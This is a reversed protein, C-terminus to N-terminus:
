PKRGISSQIQQQQWALMQKTWTLNNKASADLGNIWEQWRPDKKDLIPADTRIKAVATVAKQAYQVASTFDSQSVLIRSWDIYLEPLHESKPFSQEFALVLKKKVQVNQEARIKNYAATEVQLAPLPNREPTANVSNVGNRTLGIVNREDSSVAAAFKTFAEWENETVKTKKRILVRVVNIVGENAVYTAFYQAFESTPSANSPLIITYGDPVKITARYTVKGPAGLVFPSRPAEKQPEVGITPLPAKFQRNEGSTYNKQEYKFSFHFASDTNDSDYFQVDSVTGSYGLALAAIQGAATWEAPAIDKFATKLLVESDGRVFVDLRGALTGDARLEAELDITEDAPFPLAEPTTMVAPEANAPIVLAKRDRLSLLLMGFPATGPTTDIWAPSGEGPIYTIVHNLQDPSAVDPDLDFDTNILVPWADIGAAKLLAAFLTHKDKCDGYANTLVEEASHPQYRGAGFSVSIYRFKTAVFQYISREKELNTKLGRTLEEAKAQISPTVVTQASQLGEYWRGIEQWNHFTTLRVSPPSKATATKGQQKAVKLQSTKWSYIVSNDQERVVPNNDPSSVKVYKGAPVRVTLAEDLIVGATFFDHTYWFQDLIQSATRVKRIQFQLTDGVGLGKVPIQKTRVDTYSPAFRAAETATDQAESAPTNIVTGNAKTVSIGRIELREFASNYPFSLIGFAKIAAESQIKIRASQEEEGMGDSSFAVDVKLQEIVYDEKAYDATQSFAQPATWFCVLICIILFRISPEVM